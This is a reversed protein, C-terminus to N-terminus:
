TMDCATIWGTKKQIGALLMRSHHLPPGPHSEVNTTIQPEHSHHLFNSDIKM